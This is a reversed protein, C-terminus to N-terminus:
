KNELRSKIWEWVEGSAIGWYSLASVVVITGPNEGLAQAGIKEFVEKATGVASVFWLGQWAKIFQSPFAAEIAPAIKENPSPAAVAFIAM